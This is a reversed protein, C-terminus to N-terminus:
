KLKESQKKMGSDAKWFKYSHLLKLELPRSQHETRM